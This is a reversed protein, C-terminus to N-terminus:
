NQTENVIAHVIEVANHVLGGATTSSWVQASTSIALVCATDVNYALKFEVSDNPQLKNIDVMYNLGKNPASVYRFGTTDANVTYNGSAVESVLTADKIQAAYPEIQQTTTSILLRPYTNTSTNTVKVTFRVEDGVNYLPADPIVEVTVPASYASLKGDKVVITKNDVNVNVKKNKDVYLTGGLDTDCVVIKTSM